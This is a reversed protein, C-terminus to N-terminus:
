PKDQTLMQSIEEFECIIAKLNPNRNEVIISVYFGEGEIETYTTRITFRNPEANREFWKLFLRNRAEERHDSTDCIYLLVQQNSRFFEYIIALITAEVKSDYLSHTEEIKRLIFQYTECGGLMMDEKNFSISYHINRDTLFIFDGESLIIEYPSKEQIRTLYFKIM